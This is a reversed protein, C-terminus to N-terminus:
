VHTPEGQLWRSKVTDFNVTDGQELEQLAFLYAQRDDENEIDDSETEIVELPQIEGALGFM